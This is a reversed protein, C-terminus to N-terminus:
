ESCQKIYYDSGKIDSLIKNRLGEWYCNNFQEDTLLNTTKLASCSTYVQSGHEEFLLVIPFSPNLEINDRLRSYISRREEENLQNFYIAQTMFAEAENDFCSNENDTNIGDIYQGVHSLEHVLVLSLSLDDLSQYTPSLLIQLNQITPDNEIFVGEASGIVANENDYQINICNRNQFAVSLYTGTKDTIDMRQAIHNLARDFESNMSYPQPKNCVLIENTTDRIKLGFYFLISLIWCLMLLVSTMRFRKKSFSIISVVLTFLGWLAIMRLLNQNGIAAQQTDYLGDATQLFPIMAIGFLVGLIFTLGFRSILRKISLNFRKTKAVDEM